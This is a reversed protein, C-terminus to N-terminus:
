GAWVGGHATLQQIAIHIPIEHKDNSTIHNILKM